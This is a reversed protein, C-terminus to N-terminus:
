SYPRGYIRVSAMLLNADEPSQREGGSPPFLGGSVDFVAGLGFKHGRVNNSTGTCPLWDLALLSNLHVRQARQISHGM